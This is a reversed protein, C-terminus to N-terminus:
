PNCIYESSANDGQPYSVRGGHLGHLIRSSRSTTSTPVSSLDGHHRVSPLAAKDSWDRRNPTSAARHMRRDRPSSKGAGSPQKAVAVYGMRSHRSFYKNWSGPLEKFFCLFFAPQTGGNTNENALVLFVCCHMYFNWLFCFPPLTYLDAHLFNELSSM